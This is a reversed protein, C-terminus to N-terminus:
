SQRMSPGRRRATRGQHSTSSLRDSLTSNVGWWRFPFKSTTQSPDAGSDRSLDANADEERSGALAVGLCDRVAVKATEVAKPPISEYKLDATFKALRATVDM